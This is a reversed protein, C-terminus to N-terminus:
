AMKKHLFCILAYVRSLEVARLNVTFGSIVYKWKFFDQKWFSKELVNPSVADSDGLIFLVMKLFDM